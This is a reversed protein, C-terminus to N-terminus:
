LFFDASQLSLVAGTQAAQVEIANFPQNLDDKVSIGSIGASLDLNVTELVGCRL